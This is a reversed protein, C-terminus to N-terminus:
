CVFSFNCWFLFIYNFRFNWVNKVWRLFWYLFFIFFIGKNFEFICYVFFFCNIKVVIGCGWVIFFFNFLYIINRFVFVILFGLFCGVLWWVGWFGYNCRLFYVFGFNVGFYNWLFFWLKFVYLNFVRFCGDVGSVFGLVNFLFLYFGVGVDCFFFVFVKFWGFFCVIWSEGM